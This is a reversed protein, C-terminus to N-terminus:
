SWTIVTFAVLTVCQCVVLFLWARKQAREREFALQWNACWEKAENMTDTACTLVETQVDLDAKQKAIIERLRKTEIAFGWSRESAQQESELAELRDAEANDLQAKLREIEKEAGALQCRLSDRESEAVTLGEIIANLM